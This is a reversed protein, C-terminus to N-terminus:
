DFYGMWCVGYMLKRVPMYSYFFTTRKYM